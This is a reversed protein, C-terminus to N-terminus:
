RLVGARLLQMATKSCSPCRGANGVAAAPAPRPLPPTATKQLVSFADASLSPCQTQRTGFQSSNQASSHESIVARDAAPRRGGEKEKECARARPKGKERSFFSFPPRSESRITFCFLNSSTKRRAPCNEGVGRPHTWTLPFDFNGKGQISKQRRETRVSLRHVGPGSSARHQQFNREGVASISANRKGNGSRQAFFLKGCHPTCHSFIAGEEAINPLFIKRKCCEFRLIKWMRQKATSVFSAGCARFVFKCHTAFSVFRLWREFLYPNPSRTAVAADKCFEGALGYFFVAGRRHLKGPAATRRM